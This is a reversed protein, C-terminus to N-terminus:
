KRAVSIEIHAGLSLRAVQVTTRAPLPSKFYEKYITNVFQSMDDLYIQVSVLDSYKMHADANM